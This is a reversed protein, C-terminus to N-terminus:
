VGSPASHNVVRVAPIRESPMRGFAADFSAVNQQHILYAVTLWSIAVCLFLSLPGSWGSNSWPIFARVLVLLPLPTLTMLTFYAGVTFLLAMGSKRLLLPELTGRRQENPLLDAMSLPTLFTITTLQLFSIAVFLDYAPPKHQVSTSGQFFCGAVTSALIFALATVYGLRTLFVRRDRTRRVIDWHVIAAVGRM